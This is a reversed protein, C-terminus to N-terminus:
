RLLMEFKVADRTEQDAGLLILNMMARQLRAPTLHKNLSYITLHQLCYACCGTNKDFSLSPYVAKRSCQKGEKTLAQCCLDKGCVRDVHPGYKERLVKLRSQVLGQQLQLQTKSKKPVGPSVRPM